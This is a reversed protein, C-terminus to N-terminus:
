NYGNQIIMCLHIWIHLTWIIHHHEQEKKANFFVMVINHSNLISPNTFFIYINM